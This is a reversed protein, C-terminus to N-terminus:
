NHSLTTVKGAHAPATAAPAKKDAAKAAPARGQALPEIKIPVFRSTEIQMIASARDNASVVGETLKGETTRAVYKFEPMASNCAVPECRARTIQPPATPLDPKWAEHIAFQGGVRSKVDSANRNWLKCSEM